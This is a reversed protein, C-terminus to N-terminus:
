QYLYVRVDIYYMVMNLTNDHSYIWSENTSLKTQLIGFALEECCYETFPLVKRGFKQLLNLNFVIDRQKTTRYFYNKKKLYKVVAFYDYIPLIPLQRKM